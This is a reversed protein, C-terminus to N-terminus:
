YQITHDFPITFSSFNLSCTHHMHPFLHSVYVDQNAFQSDLVKLRKVIAKISM